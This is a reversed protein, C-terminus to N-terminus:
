GFSTASSITFLKTCYFSIFSVYTQYKLFCFKCIIHNAVVSRSTEIKTSKVALSKKEQVFGQNKTFIM